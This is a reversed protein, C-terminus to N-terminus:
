KAILGMFKRGSKLSINVDEYTFCFAGMFSFEIRHDLPALVPVLNISYETRYWKLPRIIGIYAVEKTLNESVNCNVICLKM